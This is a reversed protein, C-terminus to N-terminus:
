YWQIRSFCSSPSCPSKAVESIVPAVAVSKRGPGGAGGVPASAPSNERSSHRGRRGDWRDEDTEDNDEEKEDSKDKPFQPPPAHPPSNGPSAAKREVQVRFGQMNAFLMVHSPLIVPVRCGFSMRIPQLPHSLTSTDVGVPRGIERTTMLLRDPHRLPPPVGHLRVWIEELQEVALPDGTPVTVLAKCKSTPLTPGGGRIAMRLSEKSPLVVSFDTENLKRVQWDWTEDVLDKLEADV